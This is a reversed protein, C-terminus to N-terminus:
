ANVQPSGELAVLQVGPPLSRGSGLDVIRGGEILLVSDKEYLHGEMTLIKGNILALM